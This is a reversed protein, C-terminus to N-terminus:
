NNNMIEDIEEIHKRFLMWKEKNIIFKKSSGLDFSVVYSKYSKSIYLHIKKTDSLTVCILTVCIFKKLKFFFFFFKKKQAVDIFNHL